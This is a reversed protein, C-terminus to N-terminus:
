VYTIGGESETGHHPSPQSDHANFDFHVTLHTHPDRPVREPLISVLINKGNNQIWPLAHRCRLDVEGRSRFAYYKHTHTQVHLTVIM